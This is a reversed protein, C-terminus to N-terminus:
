FILIQILESSACVIQFFVQEEQHAVATAVYAPSKRNRAVARRMPQSETGSFADESSAALIGDGRREDLSAESLLLRELNLDFRGARMASAGQVDQHVILQM